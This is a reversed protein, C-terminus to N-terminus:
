PTWTTSCADTAAPGEFYSAIWKAQTADTIGFIATDQSDHITFTFTNGATTIQASDLTVAAGTADVRWLDDQTVSTVDATTVEAGDLKFHTAAVRLDVHGDRNTDIDISWRNELANAPVTAKNFTVETLAEVDMTWIKDAGSKTFTGNTVKAFSPCTFDDSSGGCAALAVLLLWRMPQSYRLRM